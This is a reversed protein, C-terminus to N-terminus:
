INGNVMHSVKKAINFIIEEDENSLLHNSTSLATCANVWNDLMVNTSYQLNNNRGM